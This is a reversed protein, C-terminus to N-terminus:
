QWRRVYNLFNTLHQTTKALRSRLLFLLPRHSATLGKGTYSMVILYAM